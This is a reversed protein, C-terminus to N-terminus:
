LPKQDWLDDKRVQVTYSGSLTEIIWELPMRRSAVLGDDAIYLDIAEHPPPTWGAISGLANNVPVGRSVVQLMPWRSFAITDWQRFPTGKTRLIFNKLFYPQYGGGRKEDLYYELNQTHARLWTDPMGDGVFSRTNSAQDRSFETGVIYVYPEPPKQAWAPAAVGALAAQLLARRTVAM